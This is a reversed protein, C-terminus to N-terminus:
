AGGSRGMEHKHHQEEARDLQAVVQGKLQYVAWTLRRAFPADWRRLM